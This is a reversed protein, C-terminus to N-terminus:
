RVIGHERLRALFEEVDRSIDEGGDAEFDDTLRQVVADVADGRKLAQLVALGTANVTFTYGSLPDFLFGSDSIALDRLRSLDHM